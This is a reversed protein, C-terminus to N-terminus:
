AAEENSSLATGSQSTVSLQIPRFVNGADAEALSVALIKHNREVSAKVLSPDLVAKASLDLKLYLEAQLLHPNPHRILGARWVRYTFDYHEFGYRGFRLDFGGVKDLVRRTMFMMFGNSTRHYIIFYGSLQEMVDGSDRRRNFLFHQEATAKSAMIYQLEWASKLLRVDDELLFIPDCGQLALLARNKNGAIGLNPGTFVEVGHSRCWELTADTSGDDAVVLKHATRTHRRVTDLCVRLSAVRNYTIVGIGTM